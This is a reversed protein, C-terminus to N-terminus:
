RLLWIVLRIYAIKKPKTVQKTIKKKKKEEEEEEKEKQQSIIM